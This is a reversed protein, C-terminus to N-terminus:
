IHILSLTHKGNHIVAGIALELKVKKLITKKGEIMFSGKPMSMGSPAGKKVQDYKVYYVDVTSQTRWARSFSATAIAIENVTKDSIGDETIFFPSGTIDSHFVLNDQKAYKKIINVNSQADRGGIVLNGESTIFWRFKEFWQMEEKVKISSKIKEDENVKSKIKDLDTKLKNSAIEISKIKREMKKAQDFCISSLKIASVDEEINIEPDIVPIKVINKRHQIIEINNEKLIEVYTNVKSLKVALDRM